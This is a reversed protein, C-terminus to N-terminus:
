TVIRKFPNKLFGKVSRYIFFIPWLIINNQQFLRYGNETVSKIGRKNSAHIQIFIENGGNRICYNIREQEMRTHLGQHRYYPVCFGDKLLFQHAKMKIGFEELYPISSDVVWSIYTIDGTLKDFVALGHWEPNRLRPLIKKEFAKANRYSEVKRLQEKDEWVVEQIYYNENIPSLEQIPKNRKLLYTNVKHFSPISRWLFARISAPIFLRAIIKIHKKM